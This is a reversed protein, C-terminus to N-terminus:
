EKKAPPPPPPPSVPRQESVTQGRNAGGLIETIKASSNASNDVLRDRDDQRNTM